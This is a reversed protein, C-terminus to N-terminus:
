VLTSQFLIRMTHNWTTTSLVLTKSVVCRRSCTVLSKWTEEPGRPRQLRQWLQVRKCMWSCPTPIIIYGMAKSNLHTGIPLNTLSVNNHSPAHRGSLPVLYGDAKIDGLYSVPLFEATLYNIPVPCFCTLPWVMKKNVVQLCLESLNAPRAM